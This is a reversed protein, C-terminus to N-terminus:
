IVGFMYLMRNLVIHLKFFKFFIRPDKKLGKRIAYHIKINISLIDKYLIGERTLVIEMKVDPNLSLGKILEVLRREKGGGGLTEIFFLIKM